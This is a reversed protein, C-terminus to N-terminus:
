KKHTIKNAETSVINVLDHRKTNFVSLPLYNDTAWKSVLMGIGTAAILTNAIGSLFLVLPHNRHNIKTLEMTLTTKITSYSGISVCTNLADALMKAHNGDESAGEDLLKQGYDNLKLISKLLPSLSSIKEAVRKRDREHKTIYQAVTRMKKKNSELEAKTNKTNQDTIPSSTKNKTLKLAKITTELKKIQLRYAERNQQETKIQSDLKILQEKLSYLGQNGISCRNESM